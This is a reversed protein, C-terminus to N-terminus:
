ASRRRAVFGALGLALLAFTSPVPVEATVTGDRLVPPDGSATTSFKQFSLIFNGAAGNIPADFASLTLTDETLGIALIAPEFIDGASVLVGNTIVVHRAPLLFTYTTAGQGLQGTISGTDGVGFSGGQTFTFGSLTTTPVADEILWDFNMGNGPDSAPMDGPPAPLCPDFSVGFQTTGCRGMGQVTLGTISITLASAKMPLALLAATTLILLIRSHM